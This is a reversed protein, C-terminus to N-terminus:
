GSEMEANNIKIKEKKTAVPFKREEIAPLIRV